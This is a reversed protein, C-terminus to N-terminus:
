IMRVKNFLGLKKTKMKNLITIMFVRMLLLVKWMMYFSLSIQITMIQRWFKSHGMKKAEIKQSYKDFIMRKQSNKEQQFWYFSSNKLILWGDCFISHARKQNTTPRFCLWYFDCDVVQHFNSNVM